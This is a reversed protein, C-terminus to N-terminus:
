PRHKDHTEVPELLLIDQEILLQLISNVERYMAEVHALMNEIVCAALLFVWLREDIVKTTDDVM